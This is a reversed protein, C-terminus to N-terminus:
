LALQKRVIAKLREVLQGAATRNQHWDESSAAHNAQTLLDSAQGNSSNICDQADRRHLVYFADALRRAQLQSQLVAFGGPGSGAFLAAPDIDAPDAQLLDAAQSNHEDAQANAAQLATAAAQRAEVTAPSHFACQPLDTVIKEIMRFYMRELSIVQRATPV